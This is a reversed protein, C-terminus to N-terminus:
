AVFATKYVTEDRSEVYKIDETCIGDGLPSCLQLSQQTTKDTMTNWFEDFGSMTDMGVNNEIVIKYKEEDVRNCYLNEKLKHKLKIEIGFGTLYKVIWFSKDKSTKKDLKNLDLFNKTKDSLNMEDAYCDEEYITGAKDLSLIVDMMLEGDYQFRVREFENVADPNLPDEAEDVETGTDTKVEAKEEDEVFKKMAGTDLLNITRTQGQFFDWINQIRKNKEDLIESIKVELVAAPLDSITKSFTNLEHLIGEWKCGMVSVVTEVLGLTEDCKGGAIELIM